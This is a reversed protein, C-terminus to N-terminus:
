IMILVIALGALFGMTRWMRENQQRRQEAKWEQQKLLEKTLELNKIQESKESGGLGVGFERLIGLDEEDLCTLKKVDDVAKQWAEGATVGDGKLLEERTKLLLMDLPEVSHRAIKELAVPLPTSTYIMETELLNLLSRLARLQLSRLKFRNAMYFGFSSCAFVILAAGALKLM